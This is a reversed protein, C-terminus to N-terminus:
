ARCHSRLGILTSKEEGSCAHWCMTTCFSVLDGLTDHNISIHWEFIINCNRKTSILLPNLLCRRWFTVNRDIRQQIPSLLTLNRALYTNVAHFYSILTQEVPFGELKYLLFPKLDQAEPCFLLSCSHWHCILAPSGMPNKRRKKM